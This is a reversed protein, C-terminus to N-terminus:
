RAPHQKEDAVMRALLRRATGEVTRELSAVRVKSYPGRRLQSSAFGWYRGKRFFAFPTPGNSPTFWVEDGLPRGSWIGKETHASCGRHFEAVQRSADEPDKCLHARVDMWLSSDRSIFGRHVWARPRPEPRSEAVVPEAAFGFPGLTAPILAELRKHLADTGGDPEAPVPPGQLSCLILAVLTPMVALTM